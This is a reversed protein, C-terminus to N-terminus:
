LRNLSFIVAEADVPTGDHFRVGDRLHFSWTLGDESTEWSNALSPELEMTEDAFAVLTDYLNLIVKVSEGTEANIPDLTKSDEGRGYILTNSPKSPGRSACGVLLLCPVILAFRSTFM